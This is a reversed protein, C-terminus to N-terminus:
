NSVALAVVRAAIVLENLGFTRRSPATFSRIKINQTPFPIELRQKRVSNLNLLEIAFRPTEHDGIRFNLGRCDAVNSVFVFLGPPIHLRNLAILDAVIEM